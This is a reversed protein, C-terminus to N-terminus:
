PVPSWTRCNIPILDVEPEACAGFGTRSRGSTGYKVSATSAPHFASSSGPSFLRRQERQPARLLCPLRTQQFWQRCYINDLCARIVDAILTRVLVCNSGERCYRWKQM